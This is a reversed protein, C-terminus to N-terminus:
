LAIWIYTIGVAVGGFGLISVTIKLAHQADENGVTALGAFMVCLLLVAWTLFVKLEIPM